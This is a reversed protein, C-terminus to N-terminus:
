TKKSPVKRKNYKKTNEQKVRQVEVPITIIYM